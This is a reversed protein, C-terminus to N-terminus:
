ENRSIVDYQIITRNAKIIMVFNNCLWDLQAVTLMKVYLFIVLIQKSVLDEDNQFNALNDCRISTFLFNSQMLLILLISNFENM